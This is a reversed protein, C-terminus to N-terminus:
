ESMLPRSLNTISAVLLCTVKKGVTKLFKKDTVYPFHVKEEHM